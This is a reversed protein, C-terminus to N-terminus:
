KGICFRSFIAGLVDEVDIRGTLRGLARAALRADEAALEAAPAHLARYLAELATEVAERHRARTLAPTETSALDAAVRDALLAELADLGEGSRVSASLATLGAPTTGPAGLDAKSWVLVDGPQLAALLAPEPARGTEVVGLRLDADAARELARRVGESEVADSAARLGATDALWVPFGALALRVEVVDRTTGPIDSVIAAERRALANLLSSKGANPAGIIAIRYGDRVREGRHSDALHATMADALAAFIPAARSAVGAPLDEDPFDIEAELLAIGELLRERWGDYLAALGGEAQRLAQRRQGETEADVLDALGEAGTLDLKGNDFARRTFEGPEALRLGEARLATAVAAIVAAGGHIHFEAVDEGTFSAPGPFWLILADDLPDGARDRLRRLAATRPAPLPWALAALADGAAPGSARIVAVGARGAGSALAYITAATV